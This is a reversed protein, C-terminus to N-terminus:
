CRVKYIRVMLTDIHTDGITALCRSPLFTVVAVFVCAVVSSNYADNEKRDTGYLPFYAM